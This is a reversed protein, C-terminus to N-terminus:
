HDYSRTAKVVRYRVLKKVSVKM